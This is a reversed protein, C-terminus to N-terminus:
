RHPTWRKQLHWGRPHRRRGTTHRNYPRSRPRRTDAAPPHASVLSRPWAADSVTVFHSPRRKIVILSCAFLVLSLALGPRSRNGKIWTQLAVQALDGCAAAHVDFGRRVPVRGRKLWAGKSAGEPGGTLPTTLHNLGSFPKPKTSSESPDPSAKRCPLTSAWLSIM